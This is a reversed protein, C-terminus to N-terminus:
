SGCVHAVSPLAQAEVGVVLARGDGQRQGSVRLAGGGQAEDAGRVHERGRWWAGVAGVDSRQQVTGVFARIGFYESM